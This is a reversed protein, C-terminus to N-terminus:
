SRAALLGEVIEGCARAAERRQEDVARKGGADRALESPAACRVVKYPLHSLKRGKELYPKYILQVEAAINLPLAAVGANHEDAWQGDTALLANLVAKVENPEKADAAGGAEALAEWKARQEGGFVDGVTLGSELQLNGLFARYGYSVQADERFANKSRLFRGVHAGIAELVAAMMGADEVVIGARVTDVNCKPRPLPEDRHDDASELKNLMRARSKVPARTITLLLAGDGRGYIRVERDAVVTKTPDGLAELAARLKRVFLNDLAVSAMVILRLLYTEYSTSSPPAGWIYKPMPLLGDDDLVVKAGLTAEGLAGLRAGLREEKYLRELPAAIVELRAVMAAKLEDFARPAAALHAAAAVSGLYGLFLTKVAACKAVDILGEGALALLM